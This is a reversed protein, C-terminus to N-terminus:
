KDCKIQHFCIQTSKNSYIQRFCNALNYHILQHYDFDKKRVNVQLKHFSLEFFFFLHQQKLIFKFGNQM